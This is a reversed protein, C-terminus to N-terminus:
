RKARLVVFKKNQAITAVDRYDSKLIPRYDLHRNAVVLLEGDPRLHQACQALMRKGTGPDVRHGSHFPPNVLIRHAKPGEYQTLGDSWLFTCKPSTKPLLTAANRKAAAVAMASEDCFAISKAGGRIGAHLGLVGNGCALDIVHEAPKCTTLVDLLFRAGLDLNNLSFANPLTILPAGLPECYYSSAFERQADPKTETTGSFVRAKSQGRHRTVSGLYQEMLSATHPSLHKDMGAAYVHTGLPLHLAIHHLQYEFYALQKPVRLLVRTTLATSVPPASTSSFIAPGAIKNAAANQVIAQSAVASDTWTHAAGTPISLAGHTDNITLIADTTADHAISQLLLKDAACWAQATGATNAGSEVALQFSGFPSALEATM